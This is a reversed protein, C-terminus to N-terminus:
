FGVGLHLGITNTSITPGLFLHINKWFRFRIGPQWTAAFEVDGPTEEIQQIKEGTQANYWYKGNVKYIYGAGLALDSYLSVIDRKGIHFYRRMFLGASVSYINGPAADIHTRGQWVMLGLTRKDDIRVGGTIAPGDTVFGEYVRATFEPRWNKRGEQSFAYKWGEMCTRADDAMTQAKLPFLVSILLTTILITIRMANILDPQRYIRADIYSDFESQDLVNYEMVELHREIFERM